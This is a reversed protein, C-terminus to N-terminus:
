KNKREGSSEMGAMGQDAAFIARRFYATVYWGVFVAIVAVLLIWIATPVLSRPFVNGLFPDLIVDVLVPPVHEMLAADLSYYDAAALIRLFLASEYTPAPDSSSSSSASADKDHSNGYYKKIHDKKRQNTKHKQFEHQVNVGDDDDLDLSPLSQPTSFRKMVAEARSPDDLVDM